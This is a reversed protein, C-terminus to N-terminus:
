RRCGFLTYALGGACACVIATVTAAPTGPPQMMWTLVQDLAESSPPVVMTLAVWGIPLAWAATAGLLTAGLAALGALGIGDRLVFEAPAIRTALVAATVVAAIVILHAARRPPWAIAATRDLRLDQGGLGTAAGAVGLAAALAALRPSGDPQALWGIGAVAVLIAAFAVPIQRSRAYLTLWRM